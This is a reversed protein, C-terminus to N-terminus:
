VKVNVHSYFVTRVISEFSHKHGSYFCVPSIKLRMVFFKGGYLSILWGGLGVLGRLGKLRSLSISQGRCNLTLVQNAQHQTLVLYEPAFGSSNHDICRGYHNKPLSFDGGGGGCFLFSQGLLLDNAIRM